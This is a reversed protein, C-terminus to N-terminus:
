YISVLKETSVNNALDFCVPAPKEGIKLLNLLFERQTFQLLSEPYFGLRQFKTQTNRFELVNNLKQYNTKINNKSQRRRDHPIGSKWSAFISSWFKAVRCGIVQSCFLQTWDAELFFCQPPFAAKTRQTGLQIEELRVFINSGIVHGQM